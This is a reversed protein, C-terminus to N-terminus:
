NTPDFLFNLIGRMYWAGQLCMTIGENVSINDNILFHLCTKMKWFITISCNLSNFLSRTEGSHKNQYSCVYEQSSFYILQYITTKTRLAVCKFISLYSYNNVLLTLKLFIRYTGEPLPKDKDVM